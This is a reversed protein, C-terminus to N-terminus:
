SVQSMACNAEARARSADLASAIETRSDIGLRTLIQNIHFEVTKVSIYLQGAVQRNSKGTAVARAVALQRSTLPRDTLGLEATDSGLEDDCRELFPLAGLAAFALRAASLERVAARRQGTRRLFRGYEFRTLAEDRPMGLGALNEISAAFARAAAEPRRRATDLYGRARGAAAMASRRGRAKALEEFQSLVRDSEALQGVRALAQAYVPWFSLRTPELRALLRLNGSIPHVAALVAAPDDRAVAIATRAEVLELSGPGPWARLRRAAADAHDTADRWRGRGAAVYVAALHARALLWGQDLDDILIVLREAEAAARDWEGRRYDVSVRLLSAELLYAVPLGSYGAAAADLQAAAGDLDDGDLLLAGLSARILTQGLGEEGRALEAELVVRAQEAQGALALSGGRVARSCARTLRTAATDAARQAWGAADDSRHQGLLMFALECAAVAAGERAQAPVPLASGPAAAWAQNLWREAPGYDGTLMALRALTVSRAASAPGAAVEEAYIHAQAADGLDILMGVATLLRRDRRLGREDVRVATLLHEAAEAQRGAALETAAQADLDDALIPDDGRCGAARHGLAASGSTLGAATRHLAARRSVGIDRYVAARLLAHPFACRRGSAAASDLLLRQQSAEQLAPLPDDLGALRAADTLQCDPGLIAAAVVLRETQPACAALRALVLAALSRPAPLTVGPTRLLDGPLDHLLEKVHLPIGAAHERLRQAARHGLPGAGVLEALAAVEAPNLGGLDLRLGRDTVVRLLGDPLRDLDEPRALVICLVPDSRLRRLAFSLARLSVEDVWQADDIVVVLPRVAAMAQFVLLLASGASLPSVGGAALLEALQGAEPGTASQALQDLLGGALSTEGPDGSVSLTQALWSSLCHRTLATKGIGSAGVILALQGHGGQALEYTRHLATLETARGVFPEEV